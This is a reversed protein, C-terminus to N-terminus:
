NQLFMRVQWSEASFATEARLGLADALEGLAAEADASARGDDRDRRLTLEVETASRSASTRVSVPARPDAGLLVFLALEIVDAVFPVDAPAIVPRSDDVFTLEAGSLWWLRWGLAAPLGTQAPQGLRRAHILERLSSLSSAAAAVSARVGDLRGASGAPGARVAWDAPDDPDNPDVMMHLGLMAATLDQVPGDHLRDVIERAERARILGVIRLLRGARDRDALGGDHMNAQGVVPGAPGASRALRSAADAAHVARVARLLQDPDFPKALLAVGPPLGEPRGGTMLLCRSAAAPDEARLAEVLDAGREAGIQADILVADYDAPGLERAQALTAAEDVVYGHGGLVRCILARMQDLDDIVLVRPSTV